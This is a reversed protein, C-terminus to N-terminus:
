ILVKLEGVVYTAVTKKNPRIIVQGQNNIAIFYPEHPPEEQFMTIPYDNRAIKTNYKKEVLVTAIEKWFKLNQEGRFRLSQYYSPPRFIRMQTPSQIFKIYKMLNKVKNNIFSSELSSTSKLIEYPKILIVEEDEVRGKNLEKGQEENKYLEQIEWINDDIYQNEKGRYIDLEDALIRQIQFIWDEM